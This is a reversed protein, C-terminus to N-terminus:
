QKLPEHYDYALPAFPTKAKDLLIGDAKEFAATTKADSWWAGQGKDTKEAMKTGGVAIEIGVGSVVQTAVPPIRGGGFLKTLQQPSVFMVARKDRGPTLLVHSSTGTLLTDKKNPSVAGNKILVFFKVDYAELMLQTKDKPSWSYTVEVELWQASRGGGSARKQYNSTISPSDVFATSIGQIVFDSTAASQAQVSLVLAAVTVVALFLRWPFM